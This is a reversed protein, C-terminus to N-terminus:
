AEARSWDFLVGIPFDPDSALRAFVDPADVPSHVESILDKVQMRGCQLLRILAKKDDSTTWMGASSERTPRANTHAGILSIGPCHVKKYYDISFDSNRTCGLLAVRGFDRMCDLAQDLAKGVGTVEIAIHAGGGTLLKVNAAFDPATPDLAYDAGAKLGLERRSQVPDVAIVPTMGAACLLKVAFVGLIGMGMVIAAEGIEARVKRLAALPFTAIHLMSAEELSVGEPVLEVQDECFAFYEQHKGWSTFVRDGVKCKKVHKGVEVVTGAGSYGCVRPFLEAPTDYKGYVRPDGMVNAKETGNSIATYAMKVLIHGDGCVPKEVDQLVATKPAIFVIQKM